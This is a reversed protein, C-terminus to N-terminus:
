SLRAAQMEPTLYAFERASLLDRASPDPTLRSITMMELGAMRSVANKAARFAM